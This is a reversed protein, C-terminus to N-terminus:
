MVLETLENVVVAAGDFSEDAFFESRVIAV